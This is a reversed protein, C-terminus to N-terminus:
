TPGVDGRMSRRSSCSVFMRSMSPEYASTTEGKPKETPFCQSRFQSSQVAQWVHRPLTALWTEGARRVRYLNRPCAASSCLVDGHRPDHLIRRVQSWARPGM